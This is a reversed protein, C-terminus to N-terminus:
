SGSSSAAGNRERQGAGMCKRAELALRLLENNLDQKSFVNMCNECGIVAGIFERPVRVFVYYKEKAHSQM